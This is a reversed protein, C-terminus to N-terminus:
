SVEPLYAHEATGRSPAQGAASNQQKSSGEKEMKLKRELKSLVADIPSDERHALEYRKKMEECIVIKKDKLAPILDKLEEIAPQLEKSVYIYLINDLPVEHQAPHQLLSELRRCDIVQEDRDSALALSNIRKRLVMALPTDRQMFGLVELGVVDSADELKPEQPREYSDIKYYGLINRFCLNRFFDILDADFHNLDESLQLLFDIAAKESIEQKQQEYINTLYKTLATNGASEEGKLIIAQLRAIKRQLHEAKNVFAIRTDKPVAMNRAQEKSDQAEAELDTVIKKVEAMIKNLALLSETSKFDALIDLLPKLLTEPGKFYESDIWDWGGRVLKILAICDVVDQATRLDFLSRLAEKRFKFKSRYAEEEYALVLEQYNESDLIDSNVSPTAKGDKWVFTGGGESVKLIESVFEFFNRSPADPDGYCTNPGYDERLEMRCLDLLVAPKFPGTPLENKEFWDKLKQRAPLSLDMELDIDQVSIPEKLRHELMKAFMNSCLYLPLWAVPVKESSGNCLHVRSVRAEPDLQRFVGAEIFRQMLKKTKVATLKREKVGQEIFPLLKRCFPTCELVEERRCNSLIKLVCELTAFTHGFSEAHVRELVSQYDNAFSFVDIRSTTSM